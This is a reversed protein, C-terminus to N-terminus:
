PKGFAVRLAEKAGGATLMDRGMSLWEGLAIAIPNYRPAAGALGYHLMEDVPETALTGFLRDYVILVGGFNKDLCGENTAHHVRHHSPTNFIWEFPGLKGVTETHLFFQFALNAAFMGFIALPPFGIWALPVLFLWGGSVIDTWGLRYAASFNFHTSSHHVNHTAWLWRVTHSFRHFWYYSFESLMFFSFWILPGHLTIDFLRYRHVLLFVPLLLAFSAGRIAIQVAAVAATAATEKLSYGARGRFKLWAFEIALLALPVILLRMGGHHLHPTLHNM